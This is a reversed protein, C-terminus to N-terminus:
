GDARGQSAGMAGAVSLLGAGLGTVLVGLGTVLATLEAAQYAGLLSARLTAGRFATDRLEVLTGDTDRTQQAQDALEAYTRGNTATDVHRKILEAYAKARRGSNVSAGAYRKLDGPLATREPFAIRQQALESCVMARAELGRGVMVPGAALMSCGLVRVVRVTASNRTHM